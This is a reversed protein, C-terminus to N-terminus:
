FDISYDQVWVEPTTNASDYFTVRSTVLTNSSACTGASLAAGCVVFQMDRTPSTDSPPVTAVNRCAIWVSQGNWTTFGRVSQGSFTPLGIQACGSWTQQNVSVGNVTSPAWAGYTANARYAAITQDLIDQAAYQLDRDQHLSVTSRLNTDALALPALVMSAMLLLFLMSMILVSGEDDRRLRSVFSKM